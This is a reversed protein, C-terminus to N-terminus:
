VLLITPLTLHTYSVPEEFSVGLKDLEVIIRKKVEKNLQSGVPHPKNESLLTELIQYARVGSFEDNPASAPKVEPSQLSYFQFLFLLFTLILSTAPIFFKNTTM